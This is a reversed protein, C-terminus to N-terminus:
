LGEGVRKLAFCLSRTSSCNFHLSHPAAREENLGGTQGRWSHVHTQHTHTHCLVGWSRHGSTAIKTARVRHDASRGVSPCMVFMAGWGAFGRPRTTPTVLVEHQPTHLAWCWLFHQSPHGRVGRFAMLHPPLDKRFRSSTQSASEGHPPAYQLVVNTLYFFGPWNETQALNAWNYIEEVCHEMYFKRVLNTFGPSTKQLLRIINLRQVSRFSRDQLFNESDDRDLHKGM